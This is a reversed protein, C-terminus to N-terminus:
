EASEDDAGPEVIPYVTKAPKIDVHECLQKARLAAQNSFAVANGITKRTALVLKALAAVQGTLTDIKCSLRSIESSEGPPVPVGAPQGQTPRWPFKIDANPFLDRLVNELPEEEYVHPNDIYDQPPRRLDGEAKAKELDRHYEPKATVLPWVVKMFAETDSGQPLSKLITLGHERLVDRVHGIEWELKRRAKKRPM